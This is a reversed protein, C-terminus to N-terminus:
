ILLSFRTTSKPQRHECFQHRPVRAIAFSQSPQSLSCMKLRTEDEASKPNASKEDGPDGKITQTSSKPLNRRLSQRVWQSATNLRKREDNRDNSSDGSMRNNASKSRRRKQKERAAHRKLYLSQFAVDQGGGIVRLLDGGPGKAVSEHLELLRADLEAPSLQLQLKPSEMLEDLDFDLRKDLESSLRNKLRSPLVTM